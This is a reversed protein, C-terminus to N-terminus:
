ESGGAQSTDGVSAAVGEGASGGAGALGGQRVVQLLGGDLLDGIPESVTVGSAKKPGPRVVAGVLSEELRVKEEFHLSNQFFVFSEEESVAILRILGILWNV